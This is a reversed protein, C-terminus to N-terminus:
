FSRLWVFSRPSSATVICSYSSNSIKNHIVVVPYDLNCCIRDFCLLFTRKGLFYRACGVRLFRALVTKGNGEDCHAGCRPRTGDLGGKLAGFPLRSPQGRHLVM